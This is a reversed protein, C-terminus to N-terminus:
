DRVQGTSESCGAENSPKESASERSRDECYGKVLVAAGLLGLVLAAVYATPAADGPTDWLTIGTSFVVAAALIVIAGAIMKM